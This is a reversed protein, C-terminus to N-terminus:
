QEHEEDLAPESGPGAIPRPFELRQRATYASIDDELERRPDVLGTEAAEIIRRVQSASLRPAGRKDPDEDLLFEIARPNFGAEALERVARDRARRLVGIQDIIGQTKAILRGHEATVQPMRPMATLTRTQAMNACYRDCGPTCLNLTEMEVM